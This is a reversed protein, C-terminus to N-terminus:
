VVASREHVSFRGNTSYVLATHRVRTDAANASAQVPHLQHNEGAQEPLTITQAVKDL